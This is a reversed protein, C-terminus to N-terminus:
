RKGGEKKSDGRTATYCPERVAYRLRAVERKGQHNEKVLCNVERRNWDCAEESM